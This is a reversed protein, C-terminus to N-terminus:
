RKQEEHGTFIRHVVRVKALLIREVHSRDKMIKTSQMIINNNALWIVVSSTLRLDNFEPFLDADEDVECDLGLINM